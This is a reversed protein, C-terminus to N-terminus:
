QNNDLRIRKNAPQQSENRSIETDDMLVPQLKKMNIIFGLNGNEDVFDKAKLYPLVLGSFLTFLCKIIRWTIVYIHITPRVM